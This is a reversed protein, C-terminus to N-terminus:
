WNIFIRDLDHTHFSVLAVMQAIRGQHLFLFHLSIIWMRYEKESERM